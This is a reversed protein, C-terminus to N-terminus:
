PAGRRTRNRRRVTALLEELRHDRIGLEQLHSVASELYDRARGSIGVGTEVFPLAQAIALRGAYRPDARDVAYTVAAVRRTGGNTATVRVPLVIRRYPYPGLEREDLYAIVHRAQGRAVRFARGRCAGGRDLGLVLGPNGVRGRHHVSFVCLRRHYGTLLAPATEIAEFGPDWMLSGYGFVWLEGAVGRLERGTGPRATERAM